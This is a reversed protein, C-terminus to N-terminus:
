RAASGAVAAISETSLYLENFGLKGAVLILVTALMLRLVM